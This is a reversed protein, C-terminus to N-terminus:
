MCKNVVDQHVERLRIGEYVKNSSKQFDSRDNVYDTKTFPM